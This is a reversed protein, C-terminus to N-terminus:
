IGEDMGGLEVRSPCEREVGTHAEAPGSFLSASDSQVQKCSQVLGQARPKDGRNGRRRAPRRKSSGTNERRRKPSAISEKKM